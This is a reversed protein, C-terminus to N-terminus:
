YPFIIDCNQLEIFKKANCISTKYNACNIQNQRKNLVLYKNNLYLDVQYIKFSLNNLLIQKDHNYFM